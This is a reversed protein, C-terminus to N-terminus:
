HGATEYLKRPLTTLRRAGDAEVAVTESIALGQASTYMHFVMGAEIRWGADPGFVRTFDSSRVPQQSYYGVTYGSINDYTDRLGAALVGRRLVADVEAALAGPRMQAFQADQLDILTRMTAHRTADAAGIVVSRMLRGSYGRFRPVLEVHLIDGSALPGDHMRGHLFNWGSGRTVPGVHGPLAGLEVYRRAAYASVDRESIGPRALQVIEDMTRDAISAAREIHAIEAPSKVLRLEWPLGALDVFVASPLAAGLAEFVHVTMGHSRKDIGIRAREYGHERMTAALAAVPDDGDAYGVHDAFWASERFPAVDLSRLVMVPAGDLPVICARYLSISREYGTFYAIIEIDDLLVVDVGRAHMAERLRSLRGTFEDTTFAPIDTDM